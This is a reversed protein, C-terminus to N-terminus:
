PDKAVFRVTQLIALLHADIAAYDTPKLFHINEVNNSLATTTEFLYCIGARYTSYLHGDASSGLGADGVAHDTYRIHNLIITRPKTDEDDGLNALQDCAAANATRTHSYTFYLAALNTNGYHGRSPADFFVVTPKPDKLVMLTPTYMSQSETTRQWAPPLQFTIGSSADTYTQSPTWRYPQQTNATTAFLAITLTLGSFTM